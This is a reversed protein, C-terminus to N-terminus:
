AKLVKYWMVNMLPNDGPLHKYTGNVLRVFVPKTLRASKTLKEYKAKSCAYVASNYLGGSGEWENLSVALVETDKLKDLLRIAAIYHVFEKGTFVSHIRKTEDLEEVPRHDVCKLTIDREDDTILRVVSMSEYYGDAPPKDDVVGEWQDSTTDSDYLEDEDYRNFRNSDHSVSM